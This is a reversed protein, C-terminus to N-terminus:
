INRSLSGGSSGVLFVSVGVHGVWQTGQWNKGPLKIQPFGLLYVPAVIKQEAPLAKVFRRILDFELKIGNIKTGPQLARAFSYFRFNATQGQIYIDERASNSLRLSATTSAKRRYRLPIRM